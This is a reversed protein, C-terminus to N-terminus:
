QKWRGVMKRLKGTPFPGYAKVQALLYLCDDMSDVTVHLEVLNSSFPISNTPDFTLQQNDYCSRFNLYQLINFVTCSQIFFSEFIKRNELINKDEFLEIYQVRPKIRVAFSSIEHKFRRILGSKDSFFQFTPLCEQSQLLNKVMQQIKSEM